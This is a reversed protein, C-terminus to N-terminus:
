VGGRLASLVTEDSSSRHCFITHEGLYMLYAIVSYEGRFNHLDLHVRLNADIIARQQFIHVYTEEDAKRVAM